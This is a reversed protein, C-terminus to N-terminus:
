HMGNSPYVLFIFPLSVGRSALSSFLEVEVTELTGGQSNSGHRDLCCKLITTQLKAIKGM